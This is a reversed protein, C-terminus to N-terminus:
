GFVAGLAAAAVIGMWLPIDFTNFLFASLYIGSGFFGAAGFNLYGAFGGLINWGTAIAVYQLIVYGAFFYFPNTIVSPMMVGAIVVALVAGAFILNNRKMTGSRVFGPSSVGPCDIFDRVSRGAVM